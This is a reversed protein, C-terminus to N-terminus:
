FLPVAYDSRVASAADGASGTADVQYHAAYLKRAGGKAGTATAGTATTIERLAPERPLEFAFGPAVEGPSAEVANIGGCPPETAQTCPDNPTNATAYAEGARLGLEAALFARQKEKLNGAIREQMAAGQMGSVGLITLVLLIVLAVVLVVGKERRPVYPSGNM